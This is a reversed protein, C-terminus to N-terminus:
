SDAQEAMDVGAFASPGDDDVIVLTVDDMGRCPRAYADHLPGAPSGWKAVIRIWAQVHDLSNASLGTLPVVVDALGTLNSSCASLRAAWLM